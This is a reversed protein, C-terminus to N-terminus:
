PTMSPASTKLTCSECCPDERLFGPIAIEVARGGHRIERAFPQTLIVSEFTKDRRARPLPNSFRHQQDLPANANAEANMTNHNRHYWSDSSPSILYSPLLHVYVEGWHDAYTNLSSSRLIGM